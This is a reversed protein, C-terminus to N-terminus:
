EWCRDVNKLVKNIRDEFMIALQNMLTDWNKRKTWKKTFNRINLYLIKIVASDSPFVKRNSTNKRLQANLSEINNTTYIIARLEVPYKLFTTLLDWNREWSAVSLPYKKGWKQKFESLALKAAEVTPATYIPKMDQCFEKRDKYCVFKTANRIQHVVCLQVDTLPFMSLAADPLGKLGDGCLILIDQVGRAKLDNFVTLWFKAGETESIWLGLVEQTGTITIGLVIYVCKSVVSGRNEGSRVNVHLGDVYVVPYLEALPRNQWEIIEQEVRDTARSIFQPSVEVQYMELLHDEIERTTMGRAYLSIIKESFDGVSGDRKKVIKPDFSAARDRPTKITVEGFDGRIKKSSHGNRKNSQNDDQELHDLMEVDLLAEYFPKIILNTVNEVGGLQAYLAMPGGAKKVLDKIGEKLVDPDFYVGATNEAIEKTSKKM